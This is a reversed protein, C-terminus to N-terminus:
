NNKESSYNENLLDKITQETKDYKGEGVKKYRIEGNKDILFITPWAHVDYKSWISFENDTLVPYTIGLQEVSEKVNDFNRENDFEPCHVGIMEFNDSKYKEYWKKLYPLTNTCNYCGFTWFEILVVKGKLSEITIEKDTNIWKGTKNKIEPADDSFSVNKYNPTIDKKVPISNVEAMDCSHINKNLFLFSILFLYLFILIIGISRSNKM